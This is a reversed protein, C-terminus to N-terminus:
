EFHYFSNNLYEVVDNVDEDFWQTGLNVNCRQVQTRLANESTVFHDSRTYVSDSHCQMCHEDHLQKGHMPDPDANGTSTLLTALILFTYKM